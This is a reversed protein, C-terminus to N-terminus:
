RPATGATSSKGKAESAKLESTLTTVKDSSVQIDGNLVLSLRGAGTELFQARHLTVNGQATPPLLAKYDSAPRTTSLLAETIRNRVSEGLAGSRLLEGVLGQADVRGITPVLRLSGDGAIGPILKVEITGNGEVMENPAGGFCAWREYHVQALVVSAPTSPALTATQITIQEGCREGKDLQSRLVETMNQQLDSLDATLELRFINEGSQLAGRSIVGSTTIAISQDAPSASALNVAAFNVASKVPPIKFSVDQGSDGAAISMEEGLDVQQSQFSALARQLNQASNAILTGGTKTDISLDLAKAAQALDSDTKVLKKITDKLGSKQRDSLKQLFATNETRAKELAQEFAKDRDAVASANNEKAAQELFARLEASASETGKMMLKYEIIQQSNAQVAMTEHFGKLDDKVDLGTGPGSRGMAGGGATGGGVSAAGRQAIMTCPYTSAAIVFVTRVRSIFSGTLFM